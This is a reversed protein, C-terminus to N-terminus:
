NLGPMALDMLVLDPKLQEAMDIAQQGGSAEGVVEVGRTELLSRLSIRFLTHDDALLIRM